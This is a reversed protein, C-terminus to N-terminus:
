DEKVFKGVYCNQLLKEFNVWRHFKNHWFGIDVFREGYHILVESGGPHFELYASICFVKGHIVTWFESENIQHMKLLKENINISPHLLHCPVNFRCLKVLSDMNNSNIGQLIKFQEEEEFLNKLGYVLENSRSRDQNIKLNMDNWDLASHGPALKVKQRYGGGRLSSGMKNVGLTSCGPQQIIKPADMNNMGTTRATQVSTKFKISNPKSFDSDKKKLISGTKGDVNISDSSESSTTIKPIETSNHNQKSM